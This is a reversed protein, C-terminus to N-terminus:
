RDVEHRGSLASRDKELEALTAALLRPRDALQRKLATVSLLGAVLFLFFLVAVAAVRHEGSVVIVFVVAMVLCCVLSVASILAYAAIRAFCAGQEELDSSLIALRTHVIDVLTRVLGRLSALLGQGRSGGETM